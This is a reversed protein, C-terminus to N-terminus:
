SLFHVRCPRSSEHPSERLLTEHFGRHIGQWPSAYLSGTTAYRPATGGFQRREVCKGLTEREMDLTLGASEPEEFPADILPRTRFPM